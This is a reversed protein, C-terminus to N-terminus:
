RDKWTRGMKRPVVMRMGLQLTGVPRPLPRAEERVPEFEPARDFLCDGHHAALRHCRQGNMVFEARQGSGEDEPGGRRKGCEPFASM